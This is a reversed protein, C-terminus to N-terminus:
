SKDPQRSPAAARLRPPKGLSRGIMWLIDSRGLRPRRFFDGQRHATELHDLIRWGGLATLRLEFGLRGGIQWGLPMGQEILERCRRTQQRMLAAFAPGTTRRGLQDVTVEHARMEDLPLYIRDNEDYDQGLDQYFNILQLATCLADAAALRPGDHHGSLLLLLRGVPNASRRCYDLVEAFSEYRRKSIDQRFASLLDLFPDPPLRYRAVVDALAILVPDDDPAKSALHRIKDAEDDLWRYREAATQVGEDAVDDARRAFAYIVAVPRRLRAPLLRSAVPFNEYHDRAVQLCHRYAQEISIATM